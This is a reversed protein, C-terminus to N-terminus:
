KLANKLGNIGNPVNHIDKKSKVKKMAKITEASYSSNDVVLPFPFGNTSIFKKLFIRIVDSTNLGLKTSISDVEKKLEPEIKINIQNNMYINFIIEICIISTIYIIDLYFYYDNVLLNKNICDM